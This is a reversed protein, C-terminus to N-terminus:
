PHASQQGMVDEVLYVLSSERFFCAEETPTDNTADLFDALGGLLVFRTKEYLAM